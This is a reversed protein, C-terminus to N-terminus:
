LYSNCTSASLQGEVTLSTSVTANALSAGTYSTLVAKCQYSGSDRSDLPSFSLSTSYQGDSTLAVPAVSIRSDWNNSYDRGDKSWSTAVQVRDVVDARVSILCSLTLDYGAYRQQSANPPSQWLEVVPEPDPPTTCVNLVTSSHPHCKNSAHSHM